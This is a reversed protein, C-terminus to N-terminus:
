KQPRPPPAAEPLRDFRRLPTQPIAPTSIADRLMAREIDAPFRLPTTATDGDHPFRWPPAAAKEAKALSTKLTELQLSLVKIQAEVQQIQDRLGKIEDGPTQAKALSFGVLTTLVVAVLAVKANM